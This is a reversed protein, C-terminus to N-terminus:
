QYQKCTTWLCEMPPVRSLFYFILEIALNIAPIEMIKKFTFSFTLVKLRKKKFVDVTLQQTIILQWFEADSDSAQQAVKNTSLCALDDNWAFLALRCESIYLFRWHSKEIDSKARVNTNDRM